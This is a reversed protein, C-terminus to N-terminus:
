LKDMSLIRTKESKFKEPDKMDPTVMAWAYTKEGDKIYSIPILETGVTLMSESPHKLKIFTDINITM